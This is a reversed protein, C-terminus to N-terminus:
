IPRGADVLDSVVKLIKTSTIKGEDYAPLLIESPKKKAGDCPALLVDLQRVMLPLLEATRPNGGSEVNLRRIEEAIDDIEDDVQNTRAVMEFTRRDAGMGLEVRVNPDDKPLSIRRAM